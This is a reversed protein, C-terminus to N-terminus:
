QPTPDQTNPTTFGPGRRPGDCSAAFKTPQMHVAPTSALPGTNIPARRPQWVGRRRRRARREGCTRSAKARSGTTTSFRLARECGARVSCNYGQRRKLPQLPRLRASEGGPARMEGGQMNASGQSPNCCVGECARGSTPCQCPQLLQPVLSQGACKNPIRELAPYAGSPRYSRGRRM